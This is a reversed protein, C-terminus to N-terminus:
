EVVSLSKGDAFAQLMQIAQYTAARWGVQETDLETSACSVRFTDTHLFASEGWPARVGVKVQCGRGSDDFQFAELRFGVKQLARECNVVAEFYERPLKWVLADIATMPPHGYMEVMRELGSTELKAHFRSSESRRFRDFSEFQEVRDAGNASEDGARLVRQLAAFGLNAISTREEIVARAIARRRAEDIPDHDWEIARQEAIEADLAQILLAWSEGKRLNRGGVQKPAMESWRVRVLPLRALDFLMDKIKDKDQQESNDHFSSDVEIAYLPRGSANEELMVFDLGRNGLARELDVAKPADNWLEKPFAPNPRLIAGVHTEFSVYRRRPRGGMPATAQRLLSPPYLPAHEYEQQRLLDLVACELPTLVGKCRSPRRQSARISERFQSGGEQKMLEITSLGVEECATRIEAMKPNNAFLVACEPIRNWGKGRLVVGDVICHVHRPVFAPMLRSLPVKWILDRQANKTSRILQAADALQRATLLSNPRLPPGFIVCAIHWKAFALNSDRDEGLILAAWNSLNLSM